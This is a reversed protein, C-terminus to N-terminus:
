KGVISSLGQWSKTFVYILQLVYLQITLCTKNLYLRINWYGPSIHTWSHSYLLRSDNHRGLLICILKCRSFSDLYSSSRAIFLRELKSIIENRELKRIILKWNIELKVRIFVTLELWHYINLHSRIDWVCHHIYDDIDCSLLNRYTGTDLQIYIPSSLVFRDCLNTPAHRPFQKEIKCYTLIIHETPLTVWFSACSKILIQPVALAFM